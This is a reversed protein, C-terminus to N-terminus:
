RARNRSCMYPIAHQRGNMWIEVNRSKGFRGSECRCWVTVKAFRMEDDSPSQNSQEKEQDDVIDKFLRVVPRRFDRCTPYRVKPVCLKLETFSDLRISRETDTSNEDPCEFGSACECTQHSNITFSSEEYPFATPVENALGDGYDLEAIPANAGSSQLELARLGSSDEPIVPRFEVVRCAERPTCSHLSSTTQFIIAFIAFSFALVKSNLPWQGSNKAVLPSAM